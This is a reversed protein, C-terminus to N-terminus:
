RRRRIVGVGVLGLGFLTLVTPEPVTTAIHAAVDQGEIAMTGSGTFGGSTTVTVVMGVQESVIAGYSPDGAIDPDWQISVMEGPDFGTFNYGWLSTSIQNYVATGGAPGTVNFPPPDIILSQGPVSSSTGALNFLVSTLNSTGTNFVQLVISVSNLPGPSVISAIPAASASGAVGLVFAAIVLARVLRRM